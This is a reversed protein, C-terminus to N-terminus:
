AQPSSNATALEPQRPRRTRLPLFMPVANQYERYHRGFYQVLDREEVRAALVMYVTLSASFLLHGLTMTPTAWFALAWALYLPNRVYRYLYPTRFPLASYDRGRYYM